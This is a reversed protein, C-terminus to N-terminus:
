DTQGDAHFIEAGVRCIKMFNSMQTNKSFRVLVVLVKYSSWYLRTSLHNGLSWTAVAHKEHLGGTKILNTGWNMNTYMYVLVAM